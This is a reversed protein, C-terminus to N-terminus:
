YLTLEFGQDDQWRQPAYDSSVSLYSREGQNREGLALLEDVSRESGNDGWIVYGQAVKERVSQAWAARSQGQAAYYLTKWGCSQFAIPQRNEESYREEEPLRPDILCYTTSM